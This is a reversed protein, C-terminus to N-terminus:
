IWPGCQRTRRRMTGCIRGGQGMLFRELTLVDLKRAYANSSFSLHRGKCAFKHDSKPAFYNLRTKPRVSLKCADSWYTKRKFTLGGGGWEGASFTRFAGSAM